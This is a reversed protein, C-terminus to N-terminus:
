VTPAPNQQAPQTNAAAVNARNQSATLDSNYKDNAKVIETQKATVQQQLRLLDDNLKKIADYQSKLSPDTPAQGVNIAQEVVQPNAGVETTKKEEGKVFKKFNQVYSM